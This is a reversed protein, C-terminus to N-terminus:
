LVGLGDLAQWVAETTVRDLCPYTAEGPARETCAWACFYCPMREFLFRSKPPALSDPYPMFLGFFGGGTVLVSPTGLFLALHGLGTDSSVLAAAGAVLRAAAALDLADIAGIARAGRAGPPLSQVAADIEAALAREGRGGLFVASHGRALVRRAIEVQRAVPWRKFGESAGLNLVVYREGPRMLPLPGPPPALIPLAIALPRGALKSLFDAQHETEHLPQSPDRAAPAPVIRTLRPRYHAAMADYKPDPRPEVAIRADAGSAVLAADAVHPQRDRVGCIAAKFGRRRIARLTRWRYLPDRALRREDILITEIGQYFLAAVPAWASSGLVALEALPLGLAEAYREIAARFLLADGIGGHLRLLLAGRKPKPAPELAVLWDVLRLLPWRRPFPRAKGTASM